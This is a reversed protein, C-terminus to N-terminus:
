KNMPRCSTARSSSGQCRWTKARPHAPSPPLPLSRRGRRCRMSSARPGDPIRAPELTEPARPAHPVQVHVKRGNLPRQQLELMAAGAAAADTFTVVAWPKGAVSFFDQVEARAHERCFIVLDHTTWDAGDVLPPCNCCYLHRTAAAPDKPKAFPIETGAARRSGPAATCPVCLATLHALPRHGSPLAAGPVLLLGLAPLVSGGPGWCRIGRM